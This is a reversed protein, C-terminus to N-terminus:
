FTPTIVFRIGHRTATPLDLYNLRHVYEIQILSLINQVGIAWEMYPKRGDMVHCDAPFAMLTRSNYNATVMQPVNYMFLLELLNVKLHQDVTLENYFALAVASHKKYEEPCTRQNFAPLDKSWVENRVAEALKQYKEKKDATATVLGIVLLLISLTIRKNM